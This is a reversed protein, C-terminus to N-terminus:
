NIVKKLMEVLEGQTKAQQTALVQAPTSTDVSDKKLKVKTGDANVYEFNIGERDTYDDVTVEIEGYKVTYHTGVNPSLLSCGSVLLLGVIVLIKSLM